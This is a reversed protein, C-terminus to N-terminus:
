KTINLVISFPADFGYSGLLSLTHRHAPAGVLGEEEKEKGKKARRENWLSVGHKKPQLLKIWGISARIISRNPIRIKIPVVLFVRGPQKDGARRVEKTGEDVYHLKGLAVERAFEVDPHSEQVV